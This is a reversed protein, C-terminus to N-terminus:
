QGDIDYIVTAEKKYLLDKDFNPASIIIYLAFILCLSAGAIMLCMITSLIFTKLGKEKIIKTLKAKFKSPKKIKTTTKKQKNVIKKM